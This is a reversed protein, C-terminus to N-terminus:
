VLVRVSLWSGDRSCFIFRLSEVFVDGFVEDGCNVIVVFVELVVDGEFDFRFM